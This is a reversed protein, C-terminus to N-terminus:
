ETSGPSTGPGPGGVATDLLRIPVGAALLDTATPGFMSRFADSFHSPSAFGADMSAGTLDTAKAPSGAVRVM